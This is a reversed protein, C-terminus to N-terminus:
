WTSARLHRGCRNSSTTPCPPTVRVSWFAIRVAAADRLREDEGARAADALRRRRADERAAEVAHGAGARRGLRAARALRADLDGLAAVHVDELDVRGGVRLDVVTRSTIM